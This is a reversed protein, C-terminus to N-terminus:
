PVHRYREQRFHFLRTADSVAAPWWYPAQRRAEEFQASHSRWRLAYARGHPAAAPSWPAFLPARTSMHRTAEVFRRTLPRLQRETDLRCAKASSLTVRDRGGVLHGGGTSSGRSGGVEEHAIGLLCICVWAAERLADRDTVWGVVGRAVSTLAVLGLIVRFRDIPEAQNSLARVQPEETALTDAGV